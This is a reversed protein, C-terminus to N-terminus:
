QTLFPLTRLLSRYIAALDVRCKGDWIGVPIQDEFTYEKMEEGSEFLYVQVLKEEPLVIWYERVGAAQYKRKKRFMDTYWNGSSLVEVVFDPAGVICQMTIKSRDCVVIVDPQVMTKEDADLQVDVPSVFPVCSGGNGEVFQDLAAFIKGALSQHVSTPAAMDYFVGDILEVRVGDPLAYYDEITRGSRDEPRLVAKGLLGKGETALYASTERVVGFDGRLQQKKEFFSSLAQITEYRPAGTSGGFVKQVTGLPVGSGESIQQNTFGYEKKCRLIEQLTM